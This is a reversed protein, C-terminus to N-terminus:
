VVSKRDGAPTTLGSTGSAEQWSFVVVPDCLHAQNAPALLTPSLSQDTQQRTTVTQFTINDAVTSNATALTVTLLLSLLM